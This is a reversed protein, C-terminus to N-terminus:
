TQNGLGFHFNCHLDLNWSRVWQFWTRLPPIPLSAPAPFLLAKCFNSPSSVPESIQDNLCFYIVFLNGGNMIRHNKRGTKWTPPHVWTYPSMRDKAVMLPAEWVVVRVWGPLDRASNVAKRLPCGRGVYSLKLFM